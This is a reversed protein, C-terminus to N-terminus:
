FDKSFIIVESSKKTKNMGYAWAAEIIKHDRYKERVWPCDNYSMIWSRKHAVVTFLKEHDFGEHLDGANGYLKNGGGLYYPPDLYMFDYEPNLDIFEAFDMGQIDFRDCNFEALRDISSLTFRKAAAEESFGGSLTAGSFSSRNIAFYYAARTYSDVSPDQIHLRARTFMERSLPHLKRVEEVLKQKNELLCFWFNYLPEFKDNGLVICGRDRLALEFSAGGTFPSLIVRANKPVYELLIKVARSKGGPYRLVSM